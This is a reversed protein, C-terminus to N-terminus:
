KLLGKQTLKMQLHEHISPLGRHYNAPDFCNPAQQLQHQLLPLLQEHMNCARVQKSHAATNSDVEAVFLLKNGQFHGTNGM